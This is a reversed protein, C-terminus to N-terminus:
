DPDLRSLGIKGLGLSHEGGGLGSNLQSAEADLPAMDGRGDSAADASSVHIRAIEDRTSAAAPRQEGGNHGDIRHVDVEIHVLACHQACLLQNALAVWAR